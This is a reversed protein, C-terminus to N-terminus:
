IHTTEIKLTKTHPKGDLEAYCYRLFDTGVLGIQEDIAGRRAPLSMIAMNEFSFRLEGLGFIEIEYAKSDPLGAGSRDFTRGMPVHFLSDLSRPLALADPSGTDIECILEYENGTKPERM